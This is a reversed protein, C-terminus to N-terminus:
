LNEKKKRREEVSDFRTSADFRMENCVRTGSTKKRRGKREESQIRDFCTSANRESSRSERPTAERSLSDAFFVEPILTSM